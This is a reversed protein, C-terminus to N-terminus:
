KQCFELLAQDYDYFHFRVQNNTIPREEIQLADTLHRVTFNSVGISRIKGDDVLENFATLTEQMPIMENPWHILYLDVYDTGVERLSLNCDWIVDHYRLNGHKVKTTIFLKYRDFGKIAERVDEHNGYADATDILRFGLDIARKVIYTCRAGRLQWTGLGLMPMFHGARLECDFMNM